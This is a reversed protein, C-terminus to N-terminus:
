ETGKETFYNEVLSLFVTLGLLDASGGPSINRRKFEKDMEYVADVGFDTKMGGLATIFKAKAQVEKLVELSHRHLITTDECFQMIGILTHILRDNIYLKETKNYFDIAFNFIIPLGKEVEGRIGSVGHLKFLKEGHSLKEDPFSKKAELERQTMGETMDMIIQRVEKFDKNDYIAKSVAACAIGMLFLMGKHTNIGGTAKFMENEGLVGIKRVTEFIKKPEDNSLGAECCLILPKILSVTSDLFMFYEMDKHAGDSVPSVLGPSPFCAAEYSIAQIAFKSIKFAIDSIKYAKNM